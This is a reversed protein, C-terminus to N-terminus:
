GDDTTEEGIELRAIAARLLDNDFKARVLMEIVGTQSIGNRRALCRLLVQCEESISFSTKIIRKNDM